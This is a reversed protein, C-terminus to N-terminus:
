RLLGRVTDPVPTDAWDTTHRDDRTAEKLARLAARRQNEIEAAQREREALAADRAALDKHLDDILEGMNANAAQLFFFSQESTALDARLGKITSHQWWLTALLLFVVMGKATALYKGM